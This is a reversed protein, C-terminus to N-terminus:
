PACFLCTKKLLELKMLGWFACRKKYFLPPRLLVQAIPRLHDRQFREFAHNGTQRCAPPEATEYATNNCLCAQHPLSFFADAPYETATEPSIAIYYPKHSAITHISSM